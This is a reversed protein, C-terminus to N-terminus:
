ALRDVCDRIRWSAAADLRLGGGTKPGEQRQFGSTPPHSSGQWLVSNGLGETPFMSVAVVAAIRSPSLLGLGPGHGCTV